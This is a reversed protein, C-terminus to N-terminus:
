EIQVGSYGQQAAVAPTLLDELQRAITEDEPM